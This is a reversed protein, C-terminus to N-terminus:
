FLTQPVAEIKTRKKKPEPILKSSYDFRADVRLHPCDQEIRRMGMHIAATVFEDLEGPGFKAPYLAIIAALREQIEESTPM